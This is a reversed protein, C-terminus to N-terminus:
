VLYVFSRDPDDQVQRQSVVALNTLGTAVVPHEAGHVEENITLSRKCMREAEKYNGQTGLPSDTHPYTAYSLRM